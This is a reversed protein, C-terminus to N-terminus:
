AKVPMVVYLYQEKGLPRILAAAGEGGFSIEVEDGKINALGELLFRWNFSTELREGEVRAALFSSHSGIDPSQASIELGKKGPDVVVKADQMKGSFVSAARIRSVLEQKSTQVKTTFDRPIVDQYRPYEGEILRSVIQLSPGGTEGEASYDALAQTPSFYLKLKGPLDGFIGIVEKATKAPLIFSGTQAQSKQLNLTKEALRFSDTAVLKMGDGQLYVLVGSIEPRTQNQGAMGIVQALGACFAKSEIELAEEAGQRSPIIPFDDIPLIKINTQHEKSEVQLIGKQASLKIEREPLAGVLQSLLRAPVACGGEKETKALVKCRIGIELDTASLELANKEAVVSIMGLIPLTPTKATAREVIALAQKLNEKLIQTKM